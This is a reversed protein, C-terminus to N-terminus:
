DIGINKRTLLTEITKLSYFNEPVIEQDELLVGLDKEIRSSLEVVQLSTLIGDEMLPLDVGIERRPLGTIDAIINKLKKRLDNKMLM